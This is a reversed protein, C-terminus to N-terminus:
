LWHSGRRAQAELGERLARIQAAIGLEINGLESCLVCDGPKISPDVEVRVNAGDPGALDALSRRLSEAGEPAVRLHLDASARVQALAHRVARPLLEGPDFSGLIQEVIDAVLAPLENELANAHQEVRATAAAVLRAAEAAGAAWGDDYGRQMESRYAEEASARMGDRHREAAALAEAARGWIGIEHGRVVPGLPKFTPAIREDSTM